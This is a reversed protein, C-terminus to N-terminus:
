LIGCSKLRKYYIREKNIGEQVERHVAKHFTEFDNTRLLRSVKEDPNKEKIDEFYLEPSFGFQLLYYKPITRLKPGIRFMPIGNKDYDLFKYFTAEDISGLGPRRSMVNFPKYEKPLQKWLQKGLYDTLYRFNKLDSMLKVQCFGNPWCHRVHSPFKSFDSDIFVVAHYHARNGRDGYEGAGFYRLHSYYYRLRNFFAQLDTVRLNGHIGDIDIDRPLHEDNYTLTIFLSYKHQLSEFYLRTSWDQSRSVICEYCQGCKYYKDVGLPSGDNVHRVYPRLCM